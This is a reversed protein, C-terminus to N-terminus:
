ETWPRILTGFLLTLVHPSQCAWKMEIQAYRGGYQSCGEGDPTMSIEKTYPGEPYTM